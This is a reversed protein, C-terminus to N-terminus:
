QGLNKGLLKDLDRQGDEAIKRLAEATNPDATSAALNRCLSIRERMKAAIEELEM